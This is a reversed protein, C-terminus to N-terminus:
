GFYERVWVTMGSEGRNQWLAYPIATFSTKRFKPVGQTYLHNEPLVEEYAMGKLAVTGPPLGKAKALKFTQGAPILLQSLNRGGNDISELAYVLPGRMLALHGAHFTVGPHARFVSVPMKLSVKLLDGKKWKRRFSVYGKEPVPSVKKGNLRFSATCNLPVRMSFTFEACTGFEAEIETGFPYDGRVTIKRGDAEYVSAAPINLKVGDENASWLFSGIQPLFRCFNTPCCSCDYWELRTKQFSWHTNRDVRLLNKYFYHYGDLSIGSLIGNYLARELVDMYKGDGTINFMRSAFFVLGISACSEAYASHDPLNYDNEFAESNRESGIGGTLYMRRSSISDFVAECVRFLEKDGTAQAVDAMASYLYVARVAHGVANKEERVPKLAQHNELYRPIWQPNEKLFYNPSQGREDVFYKALDLYKKKGTIDALKCLALEIEEHGPYGRKQGRGRGFVSAIYDAYRCMADLFNRRGTARFHAVAAEILHGACYLEHAAHLCTWRKDPEVVTFHTNLYGDKQQASVVLDVIENLEKEMEPNHSLQVAYAMGELVKAVDSDWFVHPKDPMGEKWQLKFANIRGDTRCHQVSKPLTTELCRRIRPALYSDNVKVENMEAPHTNKM